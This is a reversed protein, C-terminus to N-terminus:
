MPIVLIINPSSGPSVTPLNTSSLGTQSLGFFNILLGALGWVALVSRFGCHDVRHFQSRCKKRVEKAIIFRIVGFVFVVFPVALLLPVVLNVTGTINQISSNLATTTVSGAAALATLPSLGIGLALLYKKM